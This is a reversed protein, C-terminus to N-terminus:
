RQFSIDSCAGTDKMAALSRKCLHTVKNELVSNELFGKLVMQEHKLPELTKQFKLNQSILNFSITYM